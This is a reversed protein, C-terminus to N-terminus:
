LAALLQQTLPADRGEGPPPAFPLVAFPSASLRRLTRFDDLDGVIPVIGHGRLKPADEAKRTLGLLRVRGRLLAAARLAVDGCGILLVRLVNSALHQPKRLVQCRSRASSALAMGCTM